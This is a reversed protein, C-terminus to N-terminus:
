PKPAPKTAKLIFATVEKPHSLMVAHSSPLEITVAGMRKAFMREADPPIM